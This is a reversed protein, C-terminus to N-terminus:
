LIIQQQISFLKDFFNDFYQRPTWLKDPPNDFIDGKYQSDVNHPLRKRWHVNPTAQANKTKKRVRLMCKNDNNNSRSEDDM